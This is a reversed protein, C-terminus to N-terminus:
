RSSATASRRSRRRRSRPLEAHGEPGERERGPGEGHHHRRPPPSRNKASAPCRLLGRLPNRRRRQRRARRRREDRGEAHLPDLHRPRQPRPAPGQDVFLRPPGAEVRAPDRPDGARRRLVEARDRTGQPRRSEIERFDRIYGEDKLVQLVRARLTSAPSTLKSRGRLQANRIRTILDGIPDNMNM